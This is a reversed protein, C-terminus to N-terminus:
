RNITKIVMDIAKKANVDKNTYEDWTPVAMKAMDEIIPNQHVRIKYKKCLEEFENTLGPDLAFKWNKEEWKIFVDEMIGKLSPTLANWANKNVCIFQSPAVPWLYTVDTCVENFKQDILGRTGTVAGDVVGTRMGHYVETYSIFLPAAGIKKFFSTHLQSYMRIKAGKYDDRTLYPKKGYLCVYFGTPVTGYTVLKVNWKTDFLGEYFSHLAKSIDYFGKKTTVLCPLSDVGLSPEDSYCHSASIESFDLGGDRVVRLTEPGKLMEGGFFIRVKISGGTREEIANKLEKYQESIPAMPPFITSFRWTVSEKAKASEVIIISIGMLVGLIFILNRKINKM